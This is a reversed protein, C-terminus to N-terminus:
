MKSVCVNWSSQSYGAQVNEKLHRKEKSMKCVSMRACVYVWVDEDECLGGLQVSCCSTTQVDGRCCTCRDRTGCCM